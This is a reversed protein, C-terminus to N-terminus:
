DAAGDLEAKVQGLRELLVAKMSAAPGQAHQASHARVLREAMTGEKLHTLLREINDKPEIKDPM